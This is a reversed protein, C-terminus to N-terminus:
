PSADLGWGDLMGEWGTGARGQVTETGFRCYDSHTQFDSYVWAIHKEKINVGKKDNGKRNKQKGQMHM